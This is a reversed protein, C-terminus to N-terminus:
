PVVEVPTGIKVRQYIMEAIAEPLRVCGHSAPYGPLEGVHMGVADKFRMFYKMPAGAFRTGSPAADIRASVGSRVVRGRRDVFNGYLNSRHNEDKETITFMGTPTMGRSKGSSIPTDIAAEGEAILYGRQKTLSILVRANDATVRALVRPSVRPQEQEQILESAKRMPTPQDVSQAFAGHLMAVLCGMIFFILAGFTRSRSM